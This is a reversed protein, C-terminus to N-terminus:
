YAAGFLFLFGVAVYKLGTTAGLLLLSVMLAAVSASVAGLVSRDTLRGGILNGVTGGIGFLLLLVTVASEGFGVADTLLPTVYTYATFSAAACLATIGTVLQM